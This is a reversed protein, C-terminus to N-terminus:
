FFYANLVVIKVEYDKLVPRINSRAIHTLFEILQVYESLIQPLRSKSCADTNFDGVIIDVEKTEIFHYLYGYFTMLPQKNLKYLVILKLPVSM